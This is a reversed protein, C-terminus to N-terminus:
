LLPFIDTVWTFLHEVKNPSLSTCTIVLSVADGTAELLGHAWLVDHLVGHVVEGRGVLVVGLLGCMLGWAGAGVGAHCSARTGDSLTPVHFLPHEDGRLFQLLAM